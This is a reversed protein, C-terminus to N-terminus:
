VKRINGAKDEEYLDFNREAVLEIAERMVDDLAVPTSPDSVHYAEVTPNFPNADVLLLYLREYQEDRGAPDSRGTFLRLRPFANDFTSRRKPTGDTRADKDLFLLGMLVAYPFRRHLTVAEILM